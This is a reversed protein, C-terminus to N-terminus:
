RMSLGAQDINYLCKLEEPLHKHAEVKGNRLSKVDITRLLVRSHESASFRESGREYEKGNIILESSTRHKHAFCNTLLVGGIVQSLCKAVKEMVGFEGVVYTPVLLLSVTDRKAVLLASTAYDVMELCIVVAIGLGFANTSLIIRDSPTFIREGVQVASINKYFEIYPREYEEDIGPYILYGTNMYNERDHNSGGVILCNHAEAISKAYDLADKRVTGEVSMPMGLENICIIDAKFKKAAIDLCEKYESLLSDCLPNSYAVIDHRFPFNKENWLVTDHSVPLKPLSVSAIRLSDKRFAEGDLKTRITLLKGVKASSQGYPNSWERRGLKVTIREYSANLRNSNKM